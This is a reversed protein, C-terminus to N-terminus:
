KSPSVGVWGVVLSGVIDIIGIFVVVCPIMGIMKVVVIRVMGYWIIKRLLGWVVSNSLVSLLGCIKLIISIMSFIIRIRISESVYAFILLLVWYKVLVRVSFPPVIVVGLVFGPCSVVM